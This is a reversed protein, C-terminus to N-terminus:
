KQFISMFDNLHSFNSLFQSFEYYNTLIWSIHGLKQPFKIPAMQMMNQTSAENEKLKKSFLNDFLETQSNM